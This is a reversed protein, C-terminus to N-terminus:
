TCKRANKVLESSYLVLYLRSPFDPKNRGACSTCHCCTSSPTARPMCVRGLIRGSKWASRTPYACGPRRCLPPHAKLFSDRVELGFERDVFIKREDFSTANSGVCGGRCYRESVLFPLSGPWLPRQKPNLFVDPRTSLMQVGFLFGAALFFGPLRCAFPFSVCTASAIMQRCNGLSRCARSSRTCTLFVPHYARSSWCQM